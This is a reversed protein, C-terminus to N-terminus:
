RVHIYEYNMNFRLISSEYPGLIVALDDSEAAYEEDTLLLSIKKGRLPFPLLFQAEAESKNIVTLIIEAENKSYYALCSDTNTLFYFNSSNILFSSQKRVQILRKVFEKLKEDHERSNWLMCKRCGPDAGGGLGIEDGYYICPTGPYTFLFTFLLKVREKRYSCEHLIRPTDHSGIINFLVNNVTSPYAHLTTTMDEMFQKASIMDYAFFQLAKTLLPYNMVSDFQEGRLWPLSDHWIEGLIFLDPKLDKVASRFSRWFDHDIENAVDLRWGDIDCETIWYKAVHLLYEKVEQNATNFKPMAEYFGFTEYNITNAEKLPFKHIHFWDKYRSKEKNKLVDQFPPFHYGCHNFVADLMVRIGRNHCEKVLKKLMETDGFQPDVELYNITDYKHNSKAHFIPTLYIGTIGLDSLYDLSDIIGQFDGGFFNWLEPEEQGWPATDIPNLSSDGNRFREPFIQYWITSSVWSPPSFVDKEHLYPLCFYYGADNPVFPFFGKETYTIQQENDKIIFGYRIRKKNSISCHWYDFLSDTGSKEMMMRHSVWHYDSMEYQDGYIIEMENVNARKTRIRIHLTDGNQLYCYNGDSRHYISALDIM